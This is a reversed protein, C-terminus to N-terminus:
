RKTYLQKIFNQKWKCEKEEKNPFIQLLLGTAKQMPVQNKARKFNGAAFTTSKL